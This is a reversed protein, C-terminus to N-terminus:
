EDSELTYKPGTEHLRLADFYNVFAIGSYASTYIGVIGLTVITGLWWLIFSLDFVLLEWNHERFTAACEGSVRWPSQTPDDIMRIYTGDYRRVKVTVVLSVAILLLALLLTIAMATTDMSYTYLEFSVFVVLVAAAAGELLAWGLSRVFISLMIKISTIYSAGDGFCQFVM